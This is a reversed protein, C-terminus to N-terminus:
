SSLSAREAWLQIFFLKVDVNLRLKNDIKEEYRGKYFKIEKKQVIQMTYYELM